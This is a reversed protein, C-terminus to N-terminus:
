HGLSLIFTVILRLAQDVSVFFLSAVLVMLIVLLTTILTERRSPWTVKTAETRVDQLFQFPNAM